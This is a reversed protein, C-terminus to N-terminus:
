EALVQAGDRLTRPEARRKYGWADTRLNFTQEIWHALPHHQFANWDMHERLDGELAARLEAPTFSTAPTAYILTEEIVQDAGFPVGFITEAM